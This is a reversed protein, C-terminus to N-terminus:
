TFIEDAVFYLTVNTLLYFGLIVYVQGPAMGVKNSFLLLYSCLIVLPWRLQIVTTKNAAEFLRDLATVRLPNTALELTETAGVSVEATEGM